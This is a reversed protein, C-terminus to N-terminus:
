DARSPGVVSVLIISLGMGSPSDMPLSFGVNYASAHGFVFSRIPFHWTTPTPSPQFEGNQDKNHQCPSIFSPSSISLVVAAGSNSSFTLGEFGRNMYDVSYNAPSVVLWLLGFRVDTSSICFFNVISEMNHREGLCSSPLRVTGRAALSLSYRQRGCHPWGCAAFLPFRAMVSVRGPNWTPSVSFRLIAKVTSSGRLNTIEAGLGIPSASPPESNEGEEETTGVHV